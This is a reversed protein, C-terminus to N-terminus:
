YPNLSTCRVWINKDRLTRLPYTLDLDSKMTCQYDFYFHCTEYSIKYVTQLSLFIKRKKLLYIPRSYKRLKYENLQKVM